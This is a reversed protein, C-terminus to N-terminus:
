KFACDTRVDIGKPEVAIGLNPLYAFAVELSVM